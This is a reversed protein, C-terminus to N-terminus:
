LVGFNFSLIAKAMTALSLWVANGLMPMTSRPMRLVTRRQGGSELVLADMWGSM